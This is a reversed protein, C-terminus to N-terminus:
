PIIFAILSACIDAAKNIIWQAIHPLVIFLLGSALTYYADANSGLHFMWICCAAAITLLGILNTVISSLGTILSTILQVITLALIVPIAAIRFPLKVLFMLIGGIRKRM